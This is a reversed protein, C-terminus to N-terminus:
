AGAAREHTSNNDHPTRAARFMYEVPVKIPGSSIALYRIAAASTAATVVCAVTPCPGAMSAAIRAAVDAEDRVRMWQARACTAFSGDRICIRGSVLGAPHHCCFPHAGGEARVGSTALRALVPHKVRSRTDAVLWWRLQAADWEDGEDTGAHAAETHTHVHPADPNRTHNHAQARQKDPGTRAHTRDTTSIQSFTICTCAKPREAFCVHRPPSGLPPGLCVSRPPPPGSPPCDIVPDHCEPIASHM